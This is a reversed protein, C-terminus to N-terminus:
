FSRILYLIPNPQMYLNLSEKCLWGGRGKEEECVIGDVISSFKYTWKGM